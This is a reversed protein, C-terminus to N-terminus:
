NQIVVLQSKKNIQQHPLKSPPPLDRANISRTKFFDGAGAGTNRTKLFDQQQKKEWKCQLMGDNGFNMGTQEKNGLNFSDGTGLDFSNSSFAIDCFGDQTYPTTNPIHCIVHSIQCTVYSTHCTVYSIQCTVRSVHCTVHSMHCTVYSMHCIVYSM